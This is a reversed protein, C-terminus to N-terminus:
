SFTENQDGEVVIVDVWKLYLDVDEDDKLNLSYIRNKFEPDTYWGDFLQKGNFGLDPLKLSYYEEPNEKAKIKEQNQIEIIKNLDDESVSYIDNLEELKIHYALTGLDGNLMFEVVIDDAEISTIKGVRDIDSRVRKPNKVRIEFDYHEVNMYDM